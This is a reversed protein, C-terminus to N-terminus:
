DAAAGAAGAVPGIEAGDLPLAVKGGGVAAAAAAADADIGGREAVIMPMGVILIGAPLACGPSAWLLAIRAGWHCTSSNSRPLFFFFSIVSLTLAHCDLVKIDKVFFEFIKIVLDINM